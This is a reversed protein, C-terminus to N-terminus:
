WTVLMQFDQGTGAGVTTNAAQVLFDTTETTTVATMQNAASNYRWALAANNRGWYFVGTPLRGMDHNVTVNAGAFGVTWTPPVPTGGDVSTPNASTLLVKFRVSGYGIWASGERQFTLKTARNYVRMGEVPLVYSWAGWYVAIKGAHAAWAGTPANGVFYVDGDVPSGPPTNIRSIVSVTPALIHLADAIERFNENLALGGDGSPDPSMIQLGKYNVLPM